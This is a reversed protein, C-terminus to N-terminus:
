KKCRWIFIEYDLEEVRPDGVEFVFRVSGKM